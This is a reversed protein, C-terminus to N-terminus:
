GVSCIRSSDRNTGQQAERSQGRQCNQHCNTQGGQVPRGRDEAGCRAPGSDSVINYRDFVCCETASVQQLKAALRPMRSLLIAVRISENLPAIFLRRCLLFPRLALVVALFRITVVSVVLIVVSGVTSIRFGAVSACARVSGATATSFGCVFTALVRLVRRTAHNRM